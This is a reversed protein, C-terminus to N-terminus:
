LRGSSFRVEPYLSPYKASQAALSISGPEFAARPVGEVERIPALAQRWTRKGESKNAARIVRVYRPGGCDALLRVIWANADDAVEDPPSLSNESLFQAATDLFELPVPHAKISSEVAAKRALVSGSAFQILRLKADDTMYPATGRARYPMEGEFALPDVVVSQLVWGQDDDPAFVVRGTGRFYFLLRRYKSDYAQRVEAHHPTGALAFMDALSAGGGLTALRRAGADTPQYALADKVYRARLATFDVTGAVYQEVTRRKHEDAYARAITRQRVLALRASAALMIERYRGSKTRALTTVLANADAPPLKADGAHVALAEAVSDLTAANQAGADASLADLVPVLSEGPQWSAFIYQYSWTAPNSDQARADVGACLVLALAILRKL